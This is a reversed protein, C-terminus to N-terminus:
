RPRRGIWRAHWRRRPRPRQAVLYWDVESLLADGEEQRTTRQRWWRRLHGPLGHTLGLTLGMALGGLLAGTLRITDLDTM